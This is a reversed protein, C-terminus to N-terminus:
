FQRMHCICGYHSIHSEYEYKRLKGFFGKVKEGISKVTDGSAGGLKDEFLSEIGQPNSTAEQKMLDAAQHIYQTVQQPDQISAKDQVEKVM